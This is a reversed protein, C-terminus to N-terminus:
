YTQNPLNKIFFYYTKILFGRYALESHRHRGTTQPRYLADERPNYVQGPIVHGGRKRRISGEELWQNKDDGDVSRKKKRFEWEGKEQNYVPQTNDFIKGYGIPAQNEVQWTPMDHNLSTQLSDADGNM